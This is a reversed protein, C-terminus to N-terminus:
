SKIMVHEKGCSIMSFGMSISLAADHLIEAIDHLIKVSAGDRSLVVHFKVHFLIVPRTQIVVDRSLTTFCSLVHSLLPLRSVEVRTTSFPLIQAYMVNQEVHTTGKLWIAM